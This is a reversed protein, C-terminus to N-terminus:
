LGQCCGLASCLPPNSFLIQFNPMLIQVFRYQDLALAMLIVDELDLYGEPVVFILNTLLLIPSSFLMSMTCKFGDMM